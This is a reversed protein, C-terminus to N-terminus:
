RTGTEELSIDWFNLRCGGPKKTTAVVLCVAPPRTYIEQTNTADSSHPVAKPALLSPGPNFMKLVKTM